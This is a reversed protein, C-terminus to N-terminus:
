PDSLGTQRRADLASQKEAVLCEIQEITQLRRRDLDRSSFEIGFRTELFLVLEIIALSDLVGASGLSTTDALPGPRRLAASGKVYERIVTKIDDSL